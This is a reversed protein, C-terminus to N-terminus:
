SGAQPPNSLLPNLEEETYALIWRYGGASPRIGYCAARIDVAPINNDRSAQAISCYWVASAGSFSTPILKYVPKRRGRKKAAERKRKWAESTRAIRCGHLNNEAANTWYLNDVKNNEKDDDWHGVQNYREPNPCPLFALAVLRHVSINRTKGQHTLLVRIYGNKARYQRREVKDAIRRVLGDSSVEYVDEFEKFPVPAWQINREM